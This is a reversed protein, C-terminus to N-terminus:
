TRGPVRQRTRVRRCRPSEFGPASAANAHAHGLASALDSGREFLRAPAAFNQPDALCEAPAGFRDLALVGEFLQAGDFRLPGLECREDAVFPFDLLERRSECRGRLGAPFTERLAGCKPFGPGRELGQDGLRFGKRGLLGFPPASRQRASDRSARSSDAM